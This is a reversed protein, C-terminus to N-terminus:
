RDSSSSGDADGGAKKAQKSVRSFFCCICESVFLLLIRGGCPPYNGLLDAGRLHLGPLCFFTFIKVLLDLPKAYKHTTIQKLKKLLAEKNQDADGPLVDILKETAESLQLNEESKRATNKKFRSCHLFYIYLSTVELLAL